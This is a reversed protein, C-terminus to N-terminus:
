IEYKRKIEKILNDVDTRSRCVKVMRGLDRLREIRAQQLATAHKGKSKMEVWIDPLGKILIIRDPYGTANPNFYKLSLGRLKEKVQECLYSELTKESEEANRSWVNRAM